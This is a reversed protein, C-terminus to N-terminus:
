RLNPRFEEIEWVSNGSSAATVTTLWVADPVFITDACKMAVLCTSELEFSRGDADCSCTDLGPTMIQTLISAATSETSSRLLYVWTM